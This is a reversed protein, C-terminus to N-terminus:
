LGEALVKMDRGKGYELGDSRSVSGWLDKRVDRPSQVFQEGKM